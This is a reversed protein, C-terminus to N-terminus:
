PSETPFACFLTPRHYRQRRRSPCHRIVHGAILDLPSHLPHTLFPTLSHHLPPSYSPLPPLSSRSPPSSM